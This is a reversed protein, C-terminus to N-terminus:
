LFTIREIGRTITAPVWLPQPLVVSALPRIAASAARPSATWGNLTPGSKMSGVCWEAMQPRLDRLRSGNMIPSAPTRSVNTRAEAPASM